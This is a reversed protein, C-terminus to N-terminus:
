WYLLHHSVFHCHRNIQSHISKYQKYISLIIYLWFLTDIKLIEQVSVTQIWPLPFGNHM